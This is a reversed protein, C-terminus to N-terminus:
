SVKSGSPYHKPAVSSMNRPQIYATVTVSPTTGGLVYRAGIYQKAIAGAPIPLQVTDGIKLSAAPVVRSELVDHSSLNANASQVLQFEYTEDGTTIDAAVDITIHVVLPEGAGLDRGVPSAGGDFTNTSYATASLAQQKSLETNKDLIM